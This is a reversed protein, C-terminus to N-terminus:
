EEEFRYVIEYILKKQREFAEQNITDPRSMIRLPLLEQNKRLPPQMYPFDNYVFQHRQYFGVRRTSMEDEPVEVELITLKGKWEIFQDLVQGGFGGSRHASSVALHEIFLFEEIEWAGIVARYADDDEAKVGYLRYNPDLLLQKQGDAERLETPPFSEELIPYIKEFTTENIIDFM